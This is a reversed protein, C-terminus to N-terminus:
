SHLFDFLEFRSHCILNLIQAQNLLERSKCAIFDVGYSFKSANDDTKCSHSSNKKGRFNYWNQFLSFCRRIKLYRVDFKKQEILVRLAAAFAGATSRKLSFM